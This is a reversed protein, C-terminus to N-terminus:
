LSTRHLLLTRDASCVAKLIQEGNIITYEYKLLYMSKPEIWNHKCLAANFFLLATQKNLQKSCVHKSIDHLDAHNSVSKRIRQKHHRHRM